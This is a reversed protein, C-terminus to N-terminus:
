MGRRLQGGLRKEEQIVKLVADRIQRALQQKGEASKGDSTESSKGSGGEVNITINGAAGSAEILEDLKSILRDNLEESKEETPLSKAGSNLSQLNGAGINQAAARNMVFEGGTLMTSVTDIGSTPPIMGGTARLRTVDLSGMNAFYDYLQKDDGAYFDIVNKSMGGRDDVSYERGNISLIAGLPFYNSAVSYNPRLTRGSAGITQSFAEYGKVGANAKAQDEATIPDIKDSGYATAKFLGSGNLSGVGSAVSPRSAVGLYEAFGRNEYGTISKSLQEASGIQSLKIQNLGGKFNGTAMSGVGSFLNALGGVNQGDINGGTFMGKAFTGATEFFGAGKGLGSIAAKGGAMAAGGVVSLAATAAMMILQNKLAKKKEKEQKQAEQKQQYDTLYLSFAEEKASRLADAAPNNQRGFNTLRASEAELNISAFNGSNIIEDRKGTTYSQTAFGLLNKSGMIAGQGYQGPTYFNGQPGKQVTGGKAYGGISGSNLANLFDPGYKQVAKKNMVFEGGMLMAPVDDKSGSGGTVKGGSAFGAVGKFVGGLSDFVNSLSAKTMSRAFELAANQLIDSLSAGSEVAQTIGDILNNKFQESGDVLTNKLNMSLEEPTKSYKEDILQSLSKNQRDRIIKDQEERTGAGALQRQTGIDYNIKSIESGSISRNRQSILDAINAPVSNRLEKFRDTLIRTISTQKEIEDTRNDDANSLELLTTELEKQAALLANNPLDTPPMIPAVGLSEPFLQRKLLAPIEQKQNGLPLFDRFNSQIPSKVSNNFDNLKALKNDIDEIKKDISNNENRLKRLEEFGENAKKNAGPESSTRMYELSKALEKMEPINKDKTTKLAAKEAELSQRVPINAAENVIKKFEKAASIVSDSFTVTSGVLTDQLKSITDQRSKSEDQISNNIANIINDYALKSAESISQLGGTNQGISNTANLIQNKLKFQGQSSLTSPILSQLGQISQINEQKFNFNAEDRARQRLEPGRTNEARLREIQTKGIVSKEFTLDAIKNQSNRIKESYQFIKEASNQQLELQKNQNELAATTQQAILSRYTEIRLNNKEIINQNDLEKKQLKFEETIEKTFDVVDVGLITSYEKLKATDIKIEEGSIIQNSINEFLTKLEPTQIEFGKLETKAKSYLKEQTQSILNLQKVGNSADISDLSMNLKEVAKEYESFNYSNEIAAESIGKFSDITNQFTFSKDRLALFRDKTDKLINNFNVTDRAALKLQGQAEEMAKALANEKAVLQAEKSLTKIGDVLSEVDLESFVGGSIRSAFDASAAGAADEPTAFKTRNAGVYSSIYGQRLQNFQEESVNSLQLNQGQFNVNSTKQGTIASVAASAGLIDSLSGILSDFSYGYSKNSQTEIAARDLDSLSESAKNAYVAMEGLSKAASNSYTRFGSAGESLAKFIAVTAIAPTAVGGIVAGVGRTLGGTISGFRASSLGTNSLNYRNSLRNRRAESGTPRAFEYGEGGLGKKFGQSFGSIIGGRTNKVEKTVNKVADSFEKLRKVPGSLTIGGFILATGAVKQLTESLKKGSEGAEDLFGSLVSVATQFAILSILAKNSGGSSDRSEVPAYNPVFGGAAGYMKPDRGERVARNIGQFGGAPEDRRNAVMLGMPNSVSKLSPSKDVYIQSAPVGAAMERNIADKLPDAFNPIMGKQKITKRLNSLNPEQRAIGEFVKYVQDSSASPSAQKYAYNVMDTLGRSGILGDRDFAYRLSVGQGSSYKALKSKAIKAENILRPDSGSYEARLRLSNLANESLAFNPIYGSAFRFKYLDPNQSELDALSKSDFALGKDLALKRNRIQSQNKKILDLVDPSVLKELARFNLTDLAQDIQERALTGSIGGKRKIFQTDGYGGELFDKRTKNPDKDEGVIGISGKQNPVVYGAGKQLAFPGTNGRSGLFINESPIKGKLAAKAMALRFDRNYILTRGSSPNSPNYKSTIGRSVSVFIDEPDYGQNLASSILSEHGMTFPAFAGRTTAINRTSSQVYESSQKPTWSNGNRKLISAKSGFRQLFLAELPDTNTYAGITAGTDRGFLKAGSQSRSLRNAEIQEQSSTLLIARNVKGSNAVSAIGSDSARVDYIPQKNKIAQQIQSESTAAKAGLEKEVYFSKGVGPPGAVINYNSSKQAASVLADRKVGLAKLIDNDIYVPSTVSTDSAFQADINEKSLRTRLTGQNLKKADIPEIYSGTESIMGRELKKAFLKEGMSKFNAESASNKVEVEKVSNPFGTTVSRLKANLPLDIRQGANQIPIDAYERLMNEALTGGVSAFSGTNLSSIYRKAESYKLKRGKISELQKTALSVGARSSKRYFQSTLNEQNVGAYPFVIRYASKLTPTLSIDGAENSFLSKDGSKVQSSAILLGYKRSNNIFPLSAQAQAKSQREAGIKEQATLAVGRFQLAEQYKQKTVASGKLKTGGEYADIISRAIQVDTGGVSGREGTFSIGAFNPIFGSAANLDIKGDSPIYLSLASPLKVKDLKASGDKNFNRINRSSLFNNAIKKIIDSIPTRIRTKVEGSDGLDLYSNGASLKTKRTKSADLEGLVGKVQSFVGMFNKNKYNTKIRQISQPDVGNEEYFSILKDLQVNNGRSDEKKWFKDIEARAQSNYQDNSRQRKLKILGSFEDIENANAKKDFGRQKNLIDQVSYDSYQISDNDLKTVNNFNPVFGGAANIKKAGAPLGMKQVMNRNFIATGGSGAFNPIAYEGTHAVISGKKGGGFNFNPIVVPKDGSRAGGVGRSIDSSEKAVAPMYGGAANKEPVRLGQTTARVGLGYSPSALDKSISASRRIVAEQQILADTIVKLQGARNGELSFLKQQLGINTALATNISREVDAIEKAAKGIGFFSKLSSFGFQVLDKSLKLIIAGFLALGPGTILNGIGKALGRVLNGLGSEEGLINQISDLLGGFFNLLGKLSDTIGIKGLTAGLQEASISIKNILADLTQNLATNKQYAQTTAGQSLKVIDAYKSQESGLDKVAALLNSLQYVGGLKKAIDTQQIQSLGEFEKALNQLISTAPLIKGAADTVQIGLNQLDELAGKDQIKSFITKFANGIVAGGRATREQVTTIVGILEDLSVGAQDAVSASRKIGEILDRESVAYKQSVVVLKNLIQESSIGADAFSNIAATLGKVSQQADLGSLRSLILADNLRKVVDAANLGQRSLELAGDAVTQFSQGTSKALDFLSNGFKDLEASSKNLNVNIDTLAKETAITNKVLATFAKSVGNIIGVSAGFAFVRANAAEMSKTFEDAQGTIRGLPQALANIQRSNTGLNVQANKGANKLAQQISQELGTQTVPLQISQM